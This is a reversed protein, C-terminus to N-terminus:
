LGFSETDVSRLGSPEHEIMIKKIPNQMHTVTLRLSWSQRLVIFIQLLDGYPISVVFRSVAIELRSWIKTEAVTLPHRHDRALQLIRPIVQLTAKRAYSPKEAM